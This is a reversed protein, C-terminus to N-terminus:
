EPAGTWGMLTDECDSIECLEGFYRYVALIKMVLLKM